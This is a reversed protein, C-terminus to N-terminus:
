QGDNDKRKALFQQRLQAGMTRSLRQRQNRAIRLNNIMDVFAMLITFCVLAMAIVWILVFQRPQSRSVVSFAVVLVPAAILILWGNATRIRRRSEPMDAGRMALLHAAVTVLTIMALPASVWIPVLGNM